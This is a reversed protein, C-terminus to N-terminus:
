ATARRRRAFGALGLLGTGMLAYTSPEPVVNARLQGNVYNAQGIQVALDTLRADVGASQPLLSTWENSGFDVFVSSTNNGNVVGVQGTLFSTFAGTAATPSTVTVALIFGLGNYSYEGSGLTFRGLNVDATNFSAVGGIAAENFTSGAFILNGNSAAAMPQCFNPDGIVYFCGDTRGTFNFQASAVSASMMVAGVAMVVKNMVNRM